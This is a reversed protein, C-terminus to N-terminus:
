CYYKASEIVYANYEDRAHCQERVFEESNLKFITNAVSEMYQNSANHSM